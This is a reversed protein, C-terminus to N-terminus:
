FTTLHPQPYTFGVVFNRPNHFQIFVRSVRPPIFTILQYSVKYTRIRGGACTLHSILYQRLPPIPLCLPKLFRPRLPKLTRTEGQTCIISYLSKSNFIFSLRRVICISIPAPNYVTDATTNITSTNLSQVRDLQTLSHAGVFCGM